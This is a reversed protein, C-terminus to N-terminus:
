TARVIDAKSAMIKDFDALNAKRALGDALQTKFSAVLEAAENARSDVARQITFLESHHVFNASRKNFEGVFESFSKQVARLEAELERSNAKLDLARRMEEVSVKSSTIYQLESRSIKDELMSQIDALGVKDQLSNSLEHIGQSVESLSAKQSLASAFEAKAVKSNVQREVEKLLAGQGRVVDTLAKLSLRVIEPTSRWENFSGLLDEVIATSDSDAEAFRSRRLPSTM